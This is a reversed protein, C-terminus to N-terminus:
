LLFHLSYRKNDGIIVQLNLQNPPAPATRMPQGIMGQQIPQGMMGQQIPQGMIGQQAHQGMMGQQNFQGLMGQQIPQGMSQQIPLTQQPLTLFNSTQTNPSFLYKYFILSDSISSKLLIIIDRQAGKV